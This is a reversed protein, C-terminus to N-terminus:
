SWLLRGDPAFPLLNILHFLGLPMALVLIGFPLDPLLLGVTGICLGSVVALAPGAVAIQRIVGKTPRRFVVGIAFRRTVIVSPLGYHRAALLHGLEHAFLVALHAVGILLLAVPVLVAQPRSIEAVNWSASLIFLGMVFCAILLQRGQNWSALALSRTTGPYRQAPRRPLRAMILDVLTRASNTMTVAIYTATARVFAGISGSRNPRIQRRRKVDLYAKSDLLTLFTLADSLATDLDVRFEAELGLVVDPLTSGDSIASVIHMGVPNTETRIGLSTDHLECRDIDFEVDGNLSIHDSDDIEISLLTPKKNNM